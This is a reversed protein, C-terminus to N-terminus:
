GTYFLNSNFSFCFNYNESPLFFTEFSAENFNIIKGAYRFRECIGENCKTHAGASLSSIKLISNGDYIM